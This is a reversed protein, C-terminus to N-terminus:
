PSQAPTPPPVGPLPTPTVSPTPTRTPRPTRTATPVPTYTTGPWPTATKSPTPTVTPTATPQVVRVEVEGSPSPLPTPLVIVASVATPVYTIAAVVLWIMFGFVALAVLVLPWRAALHEEPPEDLLSPVPAATRGPARRPPEPSPAPAAAAYENLAALLAALSPWRRAPSKELARLFIIELPPPLRPDLARPRPPPSERLRRAVDIPHGGSFPPRALLMEYLLAGCSYVDGAQSPPAGDALEPSAYLMTTLPLNGPALAAAALGFDAVKATGDAAFLVNQPKLDGHVLGSERAHVLGALAQRAIALAQAPPLARQYDLLERLSAGPAYELVAFVSGAEEGVEYVAVVNPHRVALALRAAALWREALARDAALEPHLLKLAVQRDQKRDHALYVTTTPGEGLQRLIEYRNAFISHPIM